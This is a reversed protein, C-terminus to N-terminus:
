VDCIIQMNYEIFYKERARFNFLLKLIIIKKDTNMKVEKSRSSVVYMIVYLDISKYDYIMTRHDFYSINWNIYM